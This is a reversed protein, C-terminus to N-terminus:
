LQKFSAPCTVSVGKFTEACINQRRLSWMDNTHLYSISSLIFM